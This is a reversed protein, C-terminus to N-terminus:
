LLLSEVWQQPPKGMQMMNGLDMKTYGPPVHFPSAAPEGKKIGQYQDADLNLGRGRDQRSSCNRTSGSM